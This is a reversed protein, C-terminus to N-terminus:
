DILITNLFNHRLQGTQIYGMPQSFKTNESFLRMKTQLAIKPFAVEQLTVVQVVASTHQEGGYFKWKLNEFQVYPDYIM